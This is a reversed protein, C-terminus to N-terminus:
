LAAVKLMEAVRENILRAVNDATYQAVPVDVTGNTGTKTITFYVEIVPSLGQGPLPVNTQRQHTVTWESAMTM